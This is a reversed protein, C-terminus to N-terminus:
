VPFLRYVNGEILFLSTPGAKEEGPAGSLAYVHSSGVAENLHPFFSELEPEYARLLCYVNWVRRGQKAVMKGQFGEVRALDEPRTVDHRPLRANKGAFPSRVTGDKLLEVVKEKALVKLSKSLSGAPIGLTKALRATHFM